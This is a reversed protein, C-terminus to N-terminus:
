RYAVIFITRTKRFEYICTKKHAHHFIAGKYRRGVGGGCCVDGIHLCSLREDMRYVLDIRLRNMCM